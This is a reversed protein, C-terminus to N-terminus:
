KWISTETTAKRFGCHSNQLWRVNGTTRWSFLDRREWSVTSLKRLETKLYIKFLSLVCKNVQNV